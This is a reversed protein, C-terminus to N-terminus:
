EEELRAIAIRRNSGTYPKCYTKIGEYEQM